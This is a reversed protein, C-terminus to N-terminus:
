STAFPDIVTGAAIVSGRIVWQTTSIATLKFSTGVLSGKTSGDMTIAVHTTGNAQFVDTAASTDGSTVAGLLFQTGTAATIVKHNAGSAAVTTEFEFEMGEVPTPLTYTIATAADFLCLAGSEKALLTRATGGSTIVARHAGTQISGSPGNYNVRELNASISM